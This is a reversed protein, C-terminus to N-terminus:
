RRSTTRYTCNSFDNAEARNPPAESLKQKELLSWFGFSEGEFLELLEIQMLFHFARNPNSRWSKQGGSGEDGM